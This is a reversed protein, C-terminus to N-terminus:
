VLESQENTKEEPNTFHYHLATHASRLADLLYMNYAEWDKDEAAKIASAAYSEICRAAMVKNFM